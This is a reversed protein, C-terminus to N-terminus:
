PSRGCAASSRTWPPRASASCPGAEQLLWWPSPLVVLKLGGFLPKLASLGYSIYELVVTALAVAAIRATRLWEHRRLLPWALGLAILVANAKVGCALGIMVGVLVDGWVGSARRAVLIACIAAAAVFHGSPRRRGAAPHHGPQGVWFLTARVPDDSTKYLLVGIGIFVIGNLIMLVWITTAVSAGGIWAAFSQIVTAM